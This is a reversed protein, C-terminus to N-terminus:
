IERKSLIHWHKKQQHSGDHNQEVIEIYILDVMIIIGNEKNMTFIQPPGIHLKSLAFEVFLFFQNLIIIYHVNQVNHRNLLQYDVLNHALILHGQQLALIIYLLYYGLLELICSPGQFLFCVMRNLSPDQPHLFIIYFILM